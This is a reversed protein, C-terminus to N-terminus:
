VLAFGVISIWEVSLHKAPENSLLHPKAIGCSLISSDLLHHTGVARNM